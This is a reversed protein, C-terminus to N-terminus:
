AGQREEHERKQRAEEECRERDIREQEARAHEVEQRQREQDGQRNPDYDQNEESYGPQSADRREEDSLMRNEDRQAQGQGQQDALEKQRQLYQQSQRSQPGCSNSALETAEDMTLGFDSVLTTAIQPGLNERDMSIITRVRVRGALNPADPDGELTMVTLVYGGDIDLIQVQPPHDPHLILQADARQRQAEPHGERTMRREHHEMTSSEGAVEAARREAERRKDEERQRHDQDHRDREAIAENQRNEDEERRGQAEAERHQQQGQQYGLAAQEENKRREEEQRRVEADSQRAEEERRRVEEQQQQAYSNDSM